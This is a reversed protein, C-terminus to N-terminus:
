PYAGQGGAPRLHRGDAPGGGPEPGGGAFVCSRTLPVGPARPRGSPARACRTPSGELIARYLHARTHVDGLGIIAGKAEPGPIRVGPSWYPQLLLGMSGAPVARVLDDFLVEPEVGRARGARGRPRRVRAQVVRGDLLRSLGPDRRDLGRSDGGPLAPDDPDGRRLSGLHHQGHRDDRVLPQRDRADARGLRAGRLGQRGRRRDRAARGPARDGRRRGRDPRRPHRDTAGAGAAMGAPRTRGAVELRRRGGMPLRKYDFPLYGVQAATSDVFRGTLRQILFGSLGLYHRVAGWTEPEHARLWNAECDAAFGAITDRLGLARFALGMAGGVAPLGDTRRQDLWVIAPRLPTGADDTVVVTGRQTTLALGAIADWRVAPNALSGAVPTASRGGTCSPDQEAWGPQPSVYPEIPIRDSALLAGEADFVLARVSQTGVDIALIQADGTLAAFGRAPRRACGATRTSSASSRRSPACAWRVRRPRSTPRTTRGWATSIASRPGM